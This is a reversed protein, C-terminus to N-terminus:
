VSQSVDDANVIRETCYDHLDGVVLVVKEPDAFLWYGPKGADNSTPTTRKRLEMTQVKEVIIYVRRWNGAPLM